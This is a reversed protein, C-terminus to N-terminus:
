PNEHWEVVKREHNETDHKYSSHYYIDLLDEVLSPHTQFVSAGHAHATPWHPWAGMSWAASIVLSYAFCVTNIIPQTNGYLFLEVLWCHRM